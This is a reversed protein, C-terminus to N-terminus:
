SPANAANEVLLCMLAIADTDALAQDHTLSRWTPFALAHGIAARTRSAARGRLGRGAILTDQIARSTATSTASCASSSRSSAARRAAPQTCRSPARTSRTSSASRPRPACRRTQSRPGPRTPRAAPERRALAVLLSRVAHGRRPLPPIRDLPTRRRPRRHRQDLHARSRGGRAARRHERHDAQADAGRARRAATM